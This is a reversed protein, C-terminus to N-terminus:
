EEDAEPLPYGTFERVPRLMVNSVIRAVGLSTDGIWSATLDQYTAIDPCVIRALYDFPGSVEYCEVVEPCRKLRQEFQSQAQRHLHELAIDAFVTVYGFRAVDILALYRLLVGGQELRRVRELCPRPTLGVLESLRQNTMRGDRQLTALIQLDISDLKVQKLKPRAAARPKGAM